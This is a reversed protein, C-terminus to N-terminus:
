MIILKRSDEALADIRIDELIYLVFNELEGIVWQIRVVDLSKRKRM